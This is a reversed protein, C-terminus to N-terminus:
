VYTKQYANDLKNKNKQDGPIASVQETHPSKSSDKHTTISEAQSIDPRLTFKKPVNKTTQAVSFFGHGFRWRETRAGRGCQRKQHHNRDQQTM